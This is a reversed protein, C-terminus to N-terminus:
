DMKLIMNFEVLDLEILDVLTERGHVLMVCGRYVKRAMICDGVLTSISFPDLICEHDFGFYNAMYPTVYSLTSGPDLLYYTDHTFLKVMGIVITSSSESYQFTSLAYM